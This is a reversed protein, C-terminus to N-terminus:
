VAVRLEGPYRRPELQDADLRLGLSAGDGDGWGYVRGHEDAAVSHFAGGSVAMIILGLLAQVRKPELQKDENGHGLRGCQGAGWSYLEGESTVAFSHSAGAVVQVVDLAELSRIAQPTQLHTEDGHGLQGGAGDGWSFVSGDRALALARKNGATIARVPSRKLAAILRPKLESDSTGHGLQGLAGRGWSYVDGDASLALSSEYGASVACICVGALASVVKPEAQHNEDGHGLRGDGGAGWAWVSGAADLALSHIFGAEVAVVRVDKLGDIRRPVSEGEPEGPFSWGHGLQGMSGQGWSFCEGAETVALSLSVGAAVSRIRIGALAPIPTPVHVSSAPVDEEALEGHGLLGPTPNGDVDWETGCSLLEGAASIFLSHSMGAAITRRSLLMRRRELHLLQQVRRHCAGVSAPYKPLAHGGEVTRLRLAIEIVPHLQRCTCALACFDRMQCHKLIHAVIEAPPELLLAAAAVQAAARSARRTVPMLIRAM